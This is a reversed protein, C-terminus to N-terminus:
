GDHVVQADLIEMLEALEDDTIESLLSALQAKDLHPNSQRKELQELQSRLKGIM